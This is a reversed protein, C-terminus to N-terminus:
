PTKWLDYDREDFGEACAYLRAYLYTHERTRWTRVRGVSYNLFIGRDKLRCGKAYMHVYGGLKEGGVYRQKGEFKGRQM